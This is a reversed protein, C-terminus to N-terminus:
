AVLERRREAVDLDVVGAAADVLVEDRARSLDVERGDEALQPAQLVRAGDAELERAVAM